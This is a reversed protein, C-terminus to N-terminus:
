IFWVKPNGNTGHLFLEDADSDLAFLTAKGNTQMPLGSAEKHIFALNAFGLVLIKYETSDLKHCVVSSSKRRLTYREASWIDEM